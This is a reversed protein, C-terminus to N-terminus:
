HRVRAPAAHVVLSRRIRVPVGSALYATVEYRGPELDFLDPSLSCVYTGRAGLLRSTVVQAFVRDSGWQYVIGGSRRLVVDAYQSSGFRVRLARPTGNRLSLIWRVQPGGVSTALSYRVRLDLDRPQADRPSVPVPSSLHFTRCDPIEPVARSASAAPVAALLLVLSLAARSV